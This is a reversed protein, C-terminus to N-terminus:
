TPPAISCGPKTCPRFRGPSGACPGTGAGPGWFASVRIEDENRPGREDGLLARLNDTVIKSRLRRFNKEEQCLALEYRIGYDESNYM